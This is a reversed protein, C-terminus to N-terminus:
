AIAAMVRDLMRACRDGDFRWVDPLAADLLEQMSGALRGALAQRARHLRVRVNDGQIGLSGARAHNTRQDRDTHDPHPVVRGPSLERTRPLREAVIDHDDRLVARCARFVPQNHRRVLVAFRRRDGALM